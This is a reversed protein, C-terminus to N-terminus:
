INLQILKKYESRIKKKSVVINVGSFFDINGRQITFNEM